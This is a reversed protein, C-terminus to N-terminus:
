PTYPMEKNLLVKKLRKRRVWKYLLELLMYATLLMCIHALLDGISNYITRVGKIPVDALIIKEESDFFNSTRIVNGYADTAISTARSVPRVVAMGNEIGRLRAMYAHYPDISKWDGSPVLLIDTGKQGAQKMFHPFDADYCIIPSLKGYPSNIVPIIGDSGYDQEAFPVPNSKLYINAVTGQPIITIIKNVLLLREPNFPGPQIVGLSMFLYIGQEKALLKGREIVAQEQDDIILGIAESWVVLRAGQEAVTATENFLADLNKRMVDRTKAFKENYPAEIFAPLARNAEQLIPSSQSTEPAIEIKKDFEDLYLAEMMNSNDQTIGAVSVTEKPISNGHSMRVIGYSFSLFYVTGAVLSGKQIAQWKWQQHAMWNILSAFWAVLFTIGWIGFVSAIQQLSDFHYQTNAVSSWVDGSELTNLYELSILAAPFILTGFFGREGAKSLRDILYPVIGKIAVILMIVVMIPLPAPFVEYVGVLASVFLAGLGFVISKWLGVKRTFFLICAMGLWPGITVTWKASGLIMFFSGAVLILYPNSFYKKFTKM